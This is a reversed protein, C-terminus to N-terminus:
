RQRTQLTHASKTKKLWMKLVLRKRVTKIPHQEGKQREAIVSVIKCKDSM